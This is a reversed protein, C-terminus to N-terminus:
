AGDRLYAYVQELTKGGVMGPHHYNGDPSELFDHDEEECFATVPATFLMPEDPDLPAIKWAIIPEADTTMGGAGIRARHVYWGSEAPTITPQNNM